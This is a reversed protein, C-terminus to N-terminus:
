GTRAEVWPEPLGITGVRLQGTYSPGDALRHGRKPRAFTVTADARVCPDFARGTDGHLGSPLDLSLVAAGRAGLWRIWDAYRGRPADTLGTGLLADVVLTVGKALDTLDSVTPEVAVAINARELIALQLAADPSKSADPRSTLAVRARPALLRAMALGDGGNNGSGCLVLIHDDPGIMTKAIAAASRAAHEMLVISPLLLESSAAADLARSAQTDMPALDAACSLDLADRM